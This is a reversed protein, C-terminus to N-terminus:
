PERVRLEVGDPRVISFGVEQILDNLPVEAGRDRVDCIRGSAFKLRSGDLSASSEMSAADVVSIRAIGPEKMHIFLKLEAGVVDLRHVLPAAPAPSAEAAALRTQSARWRQLSLRLAPFEGASPLTLIRHLVEEGVLRSLPPEHVANVIAMRQTIAVAEERCVACRALHARLEEASVGPDQGLLVDTYADQFHTCNM